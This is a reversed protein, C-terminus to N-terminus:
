WAAISRASGFSRIHVDKGSGFSALQKPSTVTSTQGFVVPRSLSFNRNKRMIQIAEDSTVHNFFGICHKWHCWEIGGQSHLEGIVFASFHCSMMGGISM